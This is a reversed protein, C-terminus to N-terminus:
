GQSVPLARTMENEWYQYTLKIEFTAIAAEDNSMTIPGVETPFAGVMVFQSTIQTLTQDLTEVIINRSPPTPRKLGGGSGGNVINFQSYENLWRLFGTRLLHNQDCKVTLTMEQSMTFNTPVKFPYALYKIDTTNQTLSPLTSGAAYMTLGTAGTDPFYADVNTLYLRFQHQLQVGFQQYANYADYLSPNAM